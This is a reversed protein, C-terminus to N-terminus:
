NLGDDISENLFYSRRWELATQIIRPSGGPNETAGVPTWPSGSSLLATRGVL